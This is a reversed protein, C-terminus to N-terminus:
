RLGEYEPNVCKSKWQKLVAKLGAESEPYQGKDDTEKIWNDLIRRLKEVKGKYKPDDALNKTEHPDVNLDYLEEGPRQDSWFWAQEKNLKGEAYLKRMRVMYERGDRYQEQCYPRDVMFNRIYKYNDKTRVARIRDITYDCRDRTAIVYEREKYRRAFVNKGEYWKPIRMGSLGVTTAPIDVGSVMDKRREGAEVKKGGGPWSLRM